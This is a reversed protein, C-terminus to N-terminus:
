GKQIRTKLKTLWEPSIGMFEAIYKTPVKQIIVPFHHLLHRYLRESSYSIIKSRFSTEEQLARLVISHYFRFLELDQQLLPKLDNMSLGIIRSNAIARLECNTKQGSFFSDVCAMFPHLDSLYFYVTKGYEELEDYYRCVFGGELIFYVQDALDGPRVISSRIKVEQISLSQALRLIMSPHVGAEQLLNRLTHPVQDLDKFM